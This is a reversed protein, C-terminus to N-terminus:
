AETTEVETVENIPIREGTASDFVHLKTIDFVLDIQEKATVDADQHLRAIFSVGDVSLHVDNAVGLEEVIDVTATVVEGDRHSRQLFTPQYIDQPRIGLTVDQGDLNAWSEAISGNLTLNFAAMKLTVARETVNVTADFFNMDPSGIFKAVFTNVPRKYIETPAAVQQLNGDDMVAIRDGLTMAVEQDHTVYIMTANLKQHLKLIESRMQDRLKADLSSLPEDLLFVEPDRVIARGLAVRQKQGGSLDSPQRDLLESIELLKATEDVRQEITESDIGRVSLGFGLNERVNKHPYLALDQFVMAIDRHRPEVGTVDTDGIHIQGETPYELGAIMRLTTTKGCGSPGVFALLEGDEITLSTENVAEISGFRKEVAHLTVNGM